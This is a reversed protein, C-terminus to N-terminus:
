LAFIVRPNVWSWGSKEIIRSVEMPLGDIAMAGTSYRAYSYGYQYLSLAIRSYEYRVPRYLCHARSMCSDDNEDEVHMGRYM